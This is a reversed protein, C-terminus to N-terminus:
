QRVMKRAIQLAEDNKGADLTRQFLAGLAEPSPHSETLSRLQATSLQKYDTPLKRSMRTVAVAVGVVCVAALLAWRLRAARKRPVMPVSMYATRAGVDCAW